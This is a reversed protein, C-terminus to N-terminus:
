PKPLPPCIHIDAFKIYHVPKHIFILSSKLPYLYGDQAKVACKLAQDNNKSRFEAPILINIKALEKFLKSLVDYLLGDMEQALRDNFQEKLQIESLSIVVKQRDEREFQLAIFYHSTQGQRLPTRLHLVYAMHVNDPKPLLFGKVIDKYLVKYDNTKGHIKAFTAYFQFSYKGRPVLM